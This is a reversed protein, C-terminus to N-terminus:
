EGNGVVIMATSYPPLNHMTELVKRWKIWETHQARSAGGQWGVFQQLLTENEPSLSRVLLDSKLRECKNRAEWRCHVCPSKARTKTRHCVECAHVTAGAKALQQAATFLAVLDAGGGIQDDDGEDETDGMGGEGRQAGATTATRTGDGGGGGVEAAGTVIKVKHTTSGYKAFRKEAAVLADRHRRLDALLGDRVDEDEDENNTDSLRLIRANLINRMAIVGAPGDVVSVPVDCLEHPRANGIANAEIQITPADGQKTEGGEQEDVEVKCWVGRWPGMPQLVLLCYCAGCRAIRSPYGLEWLWSRKLILDHRGDMEKCGVVGSRVVALESKDGSGHLRFSDFVTPSFDAPPPYVEGGGGGGGEVDENDTELHSPFKPLNARLTTSLKMTAQSSCLRIRVATSQVINVIQVADPVREDYETMDAKSCSAGAKESQRVTMPALLHMEIKGGEGGRLVVNRISCAVLQLVVKRFAKQTFDEVMTATLKVVGSASVKITVAVGMGDPGRCPRPLGWTTGDYAEISDVVFESSAKKATAVVASAPVAFAGTLAEAGVTATTVTAAAPAAAVVMDVATDGGGTEVEGAPLLIEGTAAEAAEVVDEIDVQIPPAREHAAANEAIRQNHRAVQAGRKTRARQRSWSRVWLLMQILSRAAKAKEDGRGGYKQGQRFALNVLWVVGETALDSVHMPLAGHKLLARMTRAGAASAQLMGPTMSRSIHYDGEGGGVAGTSPPAHAAAVLELATLCKNTYSEAAATATARDRQLQATRLELDALVIRKLGVMCHRPFVNHSELGGPCQILSMVGAEDNLVGSPGVAYGGKSQTVKLYSGAASFKVRLHLAYRPACTRLCEEYASLKNLTLAFRALM